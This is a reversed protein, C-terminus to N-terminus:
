ERHGHVCFAICLICVCGSHVSNVPKNKNQEKSTSKKMNQSKISEIQNSGIRMERRLVGQANSTNVPDNTSIIHINMITWQGSTMEM